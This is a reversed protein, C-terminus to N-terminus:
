FCDQTDLFERLRPWCKKRFCQKIASPEVELEKAIEDLSCGPKWRKTEADKQPLWKPIIVYCSAHPFNQVHCRTLPGRKQRLWDEIAEMIQEFWASLDSDQKLDPILNFPDIPRGTELDISPLKRPLEINSQDIYVDKLIFYLKRNFWVVFSAREPKYTEFKKGFWEWTRALAEEYVEKDHHVGITITGSEQMLWVVTNRWTRWNALQNAENGCALQFLLTRMCVSNLIKRVIGRRETSGQPAYRAARVLELLGREDFDGCM